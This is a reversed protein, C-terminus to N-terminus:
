VDQNQQAYILKSLGGSMRSELEKAKSSKRRDLTRKSTTKSNAVSYAQWDFAPTDNGDIDAAAAAAMSKHRRVRKTGESKAMPSRDSSDKLSKSSKVNAGRKDDDVKFRQVRGRLSQARRARLRTCSADMSGQMSDGGGVPISGNVILASHLSQTRQREARQRRMNVASARRQRAKTPTSNVAGNSGDEGGASAVSSNEDRFNIQVFSKSQDEERQGNSSDGSRDLGSVNMESEELEDESESDSILKGEKKDKKKEKKKDKKKKKGLKKIAKLMGGKSKKSKSHDGDHATAASEESTDTEFSRAKEFHKEEADFEAALAAMESDVPLVGGDGDEFHNDAGNATAMEAATKHKNSKKGTIARGVSKAFISMRSKKTTGSQVTDAISNGGDEEIAKSSDGCADELQSLGALSKNIGGVASPRKEKKDYISTRSDDMTADNKDEDEGVIKIDSVDLANLFEDANSVQPLDDADIRRSTHRTSISRRRRNGDRFSANKDRDRGTRRRSNTDKTSQARM